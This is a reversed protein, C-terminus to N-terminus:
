YSALASEKTTVAIKDIAEIMPETAAYTTSLDAIAQDLIKRKDAMLFFSKQYNEMLANIKQVTDGSLAATALTTKFEEYRKKMDQLYKEENRALFDKEHRRMMLMLISLEKQNQTNIISEVEQVSKRLSGLLGSNQDLGMEIQLATVEHFKMTYLDFNIDFKHVQDLIASNDKAQQALEASANDIAGQIDKHRAIYKEELRLLFDKEARRASLFEITLQNAAEKIAIAHLAESQTQDLNVKGNGVIGAVLLFGFIMIGSLAIFQTKLSYNHINFSM